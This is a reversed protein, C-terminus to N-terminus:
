CFNECFKIEYDVHSRFAAMIKQVLKKANSHTLNERDYTLDIQYGLIELIQRYFDLFIPYCSENTDVLATLANIAAVLAAPTQEVFELHLLADAISCALYYRNIDKTLAYPTVLVNIGTIAQGSVTLEGVTFLGCSAALKAKPRYIGRLVRWVIGNATFVAVRADYEGSRVLKVIIGVEVITERM